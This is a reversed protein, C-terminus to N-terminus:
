VTYTFVKIHKLSKFSTLAPIFKGPAVKEHAAERKGRSQTGLERSVIKMYPVCGLPRRDYGRM